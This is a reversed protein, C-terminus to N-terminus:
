KLPGPNMRDQTSIGRNQLEQQLRPSMQGSIAVFVHKKEGSYAAMKQIADVFEAAGPTWAAYDWQLAVIVSGDKAVAVPFSGLMALRALPHVSTHLRGMLASTQVCFLADPESSSEEAAAHVFAGRNAVGDLTKLNLVFATQDTPSFATNALFRERDRESVGMNRLENRNLVKLDEPPKENVLKNLSDTANTAALGIGVPGSVPFTAASFAFGGAWSAWAVGDLEKQLVANTSYPDIGMGVAIERKKKAYGSMQQIKNGERPDEKERKKGIKKVSQGAKGMFKMVGKPVNSISTVPDKIINKAANYPGKAAAMLSNKFQDTRSVDKLDAIAYIERVRRQLMENGDAEFLGFDSDIVFQNQGSGTPVSERVTHHPGKLFEPKLIESANLEPLEEFASATEGAASTEPNQAWSGAALALILAVFFSATKGTKMPENPSLRNMKASQSNGEEAAVVVVAAVVGAEVDAAEALDAAAWVRGEVAAPLVPPAEVTDAVESFVTVQDWRVRPSAAIESVVQAVVARAIAPARMTVSVPAPVIAEM